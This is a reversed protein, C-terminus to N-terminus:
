RKIKEGLEELAEGAKRRAKGFAEQVQGGAREDAGKEQLERDDLLAGAAEKIRGKLSDKKGETEDKNM